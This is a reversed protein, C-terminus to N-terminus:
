CMAEDHRVAAWEKPRKSMQVSAREIVGETRNSNKMEREKKRKGTSAYLEWLKLQMSTMPLDCVATRKPSDTFLLITLLRAATSDYSFRVITCIIQILQKIHNKTTNQVNSGRKKGGYLFAQCTSKSAHVHFIKWKVHTEKIKAKEVYIFTLRRIMLHIKNFLVYM